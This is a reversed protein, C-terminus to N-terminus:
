QSLLIQADFKIAVVITVYCTYYLTNGNPPLQLAAPATLAPTNVPVQSMPSYRIWEQVPIVFPLIQLTQFQYASGLWDRLNYLYSTSDENLDSM